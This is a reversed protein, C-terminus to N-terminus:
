LDTIWILERALILSDASPHAVVYVDNPLIIAASDFDVWYEYVGNTTPSNNM